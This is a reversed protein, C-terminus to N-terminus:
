LDRPIIEGKHADLLEALQESTPSSQAGGHQIKYAAAAHANILTEKLTKGQLLATIFGGAFADGAGITDFVKVNYPALAFYEDDTKVITEQSGGKIILSCKKIKSKLFDVIELIARDRLKALGSMRLAETRNIILYDVNKLIPMLKEYGLHSKARGPDFSVIVKGKPSNKAIKAAEELANLDTGTMHLYKAEQIAPA